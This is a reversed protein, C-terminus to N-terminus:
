LNGTETGEPPQAELFQRATEPTTYGRNFLIQRLVPPFNQLGRDIDPSIPAAIEWQKELPTIM